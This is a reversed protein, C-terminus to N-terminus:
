REIGVHEHDSGNTSRDVHQREQGVKTEFVWDGLISHFKTNGAGFHKQYKKKLEGFQHGWVNQVIVTDSNSLQKLAGFLEDSACGPPIVGEAAFCDIAVLDFTSDASKINHEGGRNNQEGSFRDEQKAKAKDVVWKEGDALHVRNKSSEKFGFFQKAAALVHPSLDVSDMELNDPCRSFLHQNVIGGGLGILLARFTKRSKIECLQALRDVIIRLAPFAPGQNGLLPECPCLALSECPRQPPSSASDKGVVGACQSTPFDGNCELLAETAVSKESDVFHQFWRRNTDPDVFVVIQLKTGLGFSCLLQGLGASGTEEGASGPAKTSPASETAIQQASGTTATLESEAGITNM